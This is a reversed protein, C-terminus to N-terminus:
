FGYNQTMNTMEALQAAGIPYLYDKDQFVYTSIRLENNVRQYSDEYNTATLHLTMVAICAILIRLIDQAM